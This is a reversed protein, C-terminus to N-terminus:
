PASDSRGVGPALLAIADDDESVTPVQSYQGGDTDVDAPAPQEAGVDDESASSCCGCCFIYGCYVKCLFCCRQKAAVELWRERRTQEEQAEKIAEAAQVDTMGRLEPRLHGGVVPVAWAEDVPADVVAELLTKLQSAAAETRMMIDYAVVRPPAAEVVTGDPLITPDVHVAIGRVSQVVRAISHLRLRWKVEEASVTEDADADDILLLSQDTLLVWQGDQTTEMHDNYYEEAGVVMEEGEVEMGFEEKMMGVHRLGDVIAQGKLRRENGRDLGLSEVVGGRHVVRPLRLRAAGDHSLPASLLHSLGATLNATLDVVTSAAGVATQGVGEGLGKAFGVAGGEKAGHYPAVFISTTAKYLDHKLDEGAFQLGELLTHVKDGHAAHSEAGLAGLGEAVAGAVAAPAMFVGEVTSSVLGTTGKAVGIAFHEPGQQIGQIPEYFFMTIGSGLKNVLGVPNGLIGVSGIIKYVQGLFSQKLHSSVVKSVHAQAGLLNDLQLGSLRIPAEDVDVWGFASAIDLSQKEDAQGLEATLTLKIPHLQFHRVFIVKEEAPAKRLM